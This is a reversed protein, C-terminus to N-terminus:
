ASLIQQLIEQQHSNLHISEVIQQFIGTNQHLMKVINAMRQKVALIKEKPEETDFAGHSFTHLIIEFVRSLNSNNEGLVIPNNGEVLDCFYDYIYPLEDADQWVPLWGIFAQIVASKDFASSNYKLIKAVASIGNEAADLGEETERVNPKNIAEALPQLARASAHAFEVGGKMALVGMGYSAAQRIEPYEDVLHRLLPELFFQQYQARGQPGGYEIVDDYICTGWQRDRWPRSPDLLVVFQPHLTAFYPLFREEFASFLYHVIDSIRALVGAELEYTEEMEQQEEEDLEEDKRSKRLEELREEYRIMQAQILECVSAV